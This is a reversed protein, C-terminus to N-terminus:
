GLRVSLEEMEVKLCYLVEMEKQRTENALHMLCDWICDYSMSELNGECMNDFTVKTEVNMGRCIVHCMEWMEVYIGYQAIYDDLREGYHHFLEHEFQPFYFFTM